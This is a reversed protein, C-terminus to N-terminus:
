RKGERLMAREYLRRFRHGPDLEGVTSWTGLRVGGPGVNEFIADLPANDAVARAQQENIYYPMSGMDKGWWLIAVYDEPRPM